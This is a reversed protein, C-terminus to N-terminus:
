DNCGGAQDTDLRKKMHYLVSGIPRDELQGYVSYGQKEYFERADVTKLFAVVAGNGRAYDEAEELLRRAIGKRRCNEHVWLVDIEVGDWYVSGSIGGIFGTDDTASFLFRKDESEPPLNPFQSSVFNWFNDNLESLDSDSPAFNKEIKMRTDAIAM